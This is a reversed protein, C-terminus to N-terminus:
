ARIGVTATQLLRKAERIGSLWAGDVMGILPHTAEGAFLVRGHPAALAERDTYVTDPETSTTVTSYSGLTFPDTTWATAVADRVPPLEGGLAQALVQAVLELREGEPLRAMDAAQDGACTAIFVPRDQWARYDMVMPWAGRATRGMLHRVADGEWVPADFAIVVKEFTGFGIREIATQKDAPLPPDFAIAASKLVGLPATVLVHDADVRSDGCELTVDDARQRIATVVSGFRVDVGEALRRILRGYGGVPFMDHHEAAPEEDEDLGLVFRGYNGLTVDRAPEADYEALFATLADVAAPSAGAGVRRMAEDFTLASEGAEILRTLADASGEALEVFEARLREDPFAGTAPDLMAFDPMMDHFTASVLEIGWRDLLPVLPSGVSDHAWAGGLDVPAGGVEATHLRGGIRDRAELVIVERGADRLARAAALGAIGAGIVVVTGDDAVPLRPVTSTGDDFSLVDDASAPSADSQPLTGRQWPRRRRVTDM